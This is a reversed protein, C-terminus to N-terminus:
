SEVLSRTLSIAATFNRYLRVPDDDRFSVTRADVRESRPLVTVLEAMDATLWSVELTAPLEIRPLAVGGDLVRQVAEAAGSRILERALEPHLSEACFRSVSEKVVVGVADPFWPRSEEITVQDGTVLAVPVGHGLAVLGNIGAEGTVTGNLRVESIARPNYTHSLVGNSGMSGHYSVFLVAQYDPSLREMMYLPKHRGSAYSARSHLQEPPLNAMLGHSDNVLVEDAGADACGDIAANVEALLLRCGAEYAPGPPRCQSWDVIGATGEMDSSIFVRM